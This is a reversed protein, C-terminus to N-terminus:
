KDGAAALVARKVLVPIIDRKYEPSGQSQTFVSIGELALAAAFAVTEANLIKGELAKESATLRKPRAVASGLALCANKCVGNKIELAAAVMAYSEWMSPAKSLRDFIGRMNKTAAPLLVEVLLASRGLTDFLPKQWLEEVPYYSVKGKYLVQAQAQLACFVTPMHNHPMPRAINGGITAMNRILQSSVTFSATQLIGGAWACATKSALLDSFTVAAGIHLGKADAKIYKLPLNRIDVGREAGGPINKAAMTSGAILLAGPKALLTAAEKITAPFHYSNLKQM